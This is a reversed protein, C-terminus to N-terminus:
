GWWETALAPVSNLLAWTYPHKAENFIEKTTGREVVQGAYM